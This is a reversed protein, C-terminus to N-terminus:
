QHLVTCRSEAASATSRTQPHQATLVAHRSRLHQGSPPRSAGPHPRTARSPHTVPGTKPPALAVAAPPPPTAGAEVVGAAAEVEDAAKVEVAAVAVAAGVMRGRHHVLAVALVALM